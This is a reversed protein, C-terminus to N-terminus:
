GVGDITIRYAGTGTYAVVASPSPPDCTLCVKGGERTLRGHEYFSHGNRCKRVRSRRRPNKRRENEGRTVAELHGPRLCRRRRCVHDIEHKAPIPGVRETYVQRYIRRGDLTPYGDRDVSGAWLWCGFVPDEKVSLELV